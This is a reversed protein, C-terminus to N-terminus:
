AQSSTRVAILAHRHSPHPSCTLGFGELVRRCGEMTAPAHVELVLSQVVRLWTAEPVLVVAEAGEIDMKLLDVRELSQERLLTPMTLCRVTQRQPPGSGETLVRYGWEETGSYEIEGERNWIAANVISCRTGFHRVNKAALQANHSDMEVGIIRSKPYSSAYHAMTYGVNAGLDVIVADEPVSLHQPPMHYQSLFVDHFVAPDTSRSRMYLLAGGAARVHLAVPASFRDPHHRLARYRLVDRLGGFIRVYRALWLAKNLM